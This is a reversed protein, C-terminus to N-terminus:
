ETIADIGIRLGIEAITAEELFLAKCRALKAQVIPDNAMQRDSYLEVEKVNKRLPRDREFVCQYASKAAIRDIEMSVCRYGYSLLTHYECPLFWMRLKELSECGCGFHWGARLVMDPFEVHPPKLLALEVEPRESVWYKSFGPRFPGRGEKDQIRYIIQKRKM